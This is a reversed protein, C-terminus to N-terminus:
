ASPASESSEQSSTAPPSPTDVLGGASQQQSGEPNAPLGGASMLKQLGSSDINGMMDTLVAMIAPKLAEMDPENLKDLIPRIKTWRQGFTKRSTLHQQLESWTSAPFFDAAAELVVAFAEPIVDGRILKSFQRDTLKNEDIQDRCLVTLVKVLKSVDQSITALGGASLDALDIGTRTRVEDLLLGDWEILWSRKNIDKFTPM